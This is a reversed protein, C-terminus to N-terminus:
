HYFVRIALRKRNQSQFFIPSFKSYATSLSGPILAYDIALKDIFAEPNSLVDFHESDIGVRIAMTNGSFIIGSTPAAILHTNANTKLSYMIHLLSINTVQIVAEHCGNSFTIQDAPVTVIEGNGISSMTMASMTLFNTRNPSNQNSFLYPSEESPFHMTKLSSSTKQIKRSGPSGNQTTQMELSPIFSCATSIEVNEETEELNYEYSDDSFQTMTPTKPFHESFNDIPYGDDDYHSLITSGLDRSLQNMFQWSLPIAESNSRVAHLFVVTLLGAKCLNYGQATGVFQDILAVFGYLTWYFLITHYGQKTTQQSMLVRYSFIAPPVSTM